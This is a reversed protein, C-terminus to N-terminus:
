KVPTKRLVQSHRDAQIRSLLSSRHQSLMHLIDMPYPLVRTDLWHKWNIDV